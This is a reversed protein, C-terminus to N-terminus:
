RLKHLSFPFFFIWYNRFELRIVHNLNQVGFYLENQIHITLNKEKWWEFYKRGGRSNERNMDDISNFNQGNGSRADIACITASALGFLGVIAILFVAIFKMKIEIKNCQNLPVSAKNETWENYKYWQFEFYFQVKNKQMLCLILFKHVNYM